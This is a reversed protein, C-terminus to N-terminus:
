RFSNRTMKVLFFQSFTLSINRQPVAGKENLEWLFYLELFTPKQYIDIRYKERFTFSFATDAGGVSVLTGYKQNLWLM